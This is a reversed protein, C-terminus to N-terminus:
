IAVGKSTKLGHERRKSRRMMVITRRETVVTGVSKDTRSRPVRDVVQFDFCIGVRLARPIGKLWRDYYGRGYGLRHGARDFAIGPVLVLDIDRKEAYVCENPERVGYAGVALGRKLSTIKAARLEDTVSDVVPVVVEKGKRCAREIMRETCVESGHTVFFMIRAARRFGEFAELRQELRRSLGARENRSLADRISRLRRRM